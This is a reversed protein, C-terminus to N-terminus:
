IVELLKHHSYFIFSRRRALLRNILLTPFQSEKGAIDDETFFCFFVMSFVLAGVFVLIGVV